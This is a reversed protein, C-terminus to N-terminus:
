PHQSEPQPRRDSAARHRIYLRDLYATFGDLNHPAGIYAVHGDPRILLLRPTGAAYQSHLATEAAPVLHVQIDLAYEGLLTEIAQLRAIIAPDRTPGEFLLLHHRIGGVVAYLDGPGHDDASEFRGFPARDGPSPDPGARGGHAVAPSHRYSIWTQSFLRFVATRVISLGTMPGILRAAVHWRLWRAIPHRLTEVAFGRDAGRLVTRAVPYREAEYSDLLRERAQRHAVLALKWGLNFADGIALNMGQGGAPSHIHAADGVLFVNGARFREAIRSHIRFLATWAADTVRADVAFYEDFWRQIDALAVAAYAEHSVDGGSSGATFEPPVAGFLRFRGNALRFMGVFGGRTLNLRVTGAPLGTDASMHLDVDALLGTQDYTTGAFGIGLAHRVPSRAGDAGIVWQASICERSGDAQRLMARPGHPTDTLAVLETDWEVPRGHEALWDVLLQETRDQELGLAYPFPTLAASGRGALPFEGARRGRQYIEVRTTKIGQAVARDALGLRDLLELPRVHVIAARSQEVPGSKRDVIRFEVGRDALVAALVLGAPGAGVILVDRGM